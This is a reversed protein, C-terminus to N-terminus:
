LGLHFDVPEVRSNNYNDTQLKRRNELLKQKRNENSKRLNEIQKDYLTCLSNVQEETLEEEKIEGSRYQKQLKLLKTEENEINRIEEMFSSKNSEQNKIITTETVNISEVNSNTRSFLSRFFKKIKYFISNKNVQVLSKEQTNEKM